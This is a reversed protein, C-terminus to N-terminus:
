NTSQITSINNSWAAANTAPTNSLTLSVAPLYSENHQSTDHIDRPFVWALFSITFALVAVVIAIRSLCNAERNTAIAEKHKRDADVAKHKEMRKRREDLAVQIDFRDPFKEIFRDLEDDNMEHFKPPSSM